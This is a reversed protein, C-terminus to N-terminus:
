DELQKTLTDDASCLWKLHANIKADDWNWWKMEYLKDRREKEFRWKIFKAPNGGVISYPEVNKVVHSNAAIVAGDGITVGSMITVNRGIWVDSGIVVNGNTQPHGTGDFNDFVRQYIHGFPYTTNWDTRHNLGLFIVCGEAISTFNGIMLDAADGMLRIGQHGYTWKGVCVVM